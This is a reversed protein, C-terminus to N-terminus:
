HPRSRAWIAILVVAVTALFGMEIALLVPDTQAPPRCQM